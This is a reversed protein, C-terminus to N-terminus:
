LRMWKAFTPKLARDYFENFHWWRGTIDKCCDFFQEVQDMEDRLVKWTREADDKDAQTPVQELDPDNNVLALAENRADDVRNYLTMWEDLKTDAIRQFKTGIGHLM